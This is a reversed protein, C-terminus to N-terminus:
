NKEGYILWHANTIGKFTIESYGVDLNDFQKFLNQADEKTKAALVVVGDQNSSNQKFRFIGERIKESRTVMVQDYTSIAALFRGGPKLVRIIENISTSLSEEDNYSLVHWAIVLDFFQDSYPLINGKSLDLNAKLNLKKLRHSTIDIASQSIEVGYCSLGTNALFELNNGSGFGIDLCNMQQLNKGSVSRYFAVVLDECPYKLIDQNQAYIKEWINQNNELTNNM